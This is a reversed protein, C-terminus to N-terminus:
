DRHQLTVMLVALDDSVGGAGAHSVGSEVLARVLQLPPLDAHREVAIQVRDAGFAGLSPHNAELLGDSHLILRDGPELVGTWSQWESGARGLPPGAPLDLYGQTANARRLLPSPHGASVLVLEGTDLDLRGLLLAAFFETEYGQITIDAIRQLAKEPREDRRLLGPLLSGLRTMALMAEIGRGRIDGLYFVCIGAAPAVFGYFDGAVEATPHLCGNLECRLRPGFFVRDAPLLSRQMRGTLDMQEHLRRQTDAAERLQEFNRKLTQRARDLAMVLRGLEDKSAVRRSPREFNGQALEEASEALDVLSRTMPRLLRFVLALLIVLLVMLFVAIRRSSEHLPALLEANSWSLAAQWDVPAIRQVALLRPGSIDERIRLLQVSVDSPLDALRQLVGSGSKRAAQEILYARELSPDSSLLVRGSADLLAYQGLHSERRLGIEAALEAIRDLSLSVGIMGIRRGQPDILPRDFTVTDQGGAADNFYPDSWWGASSALTRVYWDRTWYEYGTAVFDVVDLGQAAYSVSIAFRRGPLLPNDPELMISVQAIDPDNLVRAKLLTVAQDADLRGDIVQQALEETRRELRKFLASLTDTVRAQQDLLDGAARELAQDRLLWYSLGLALLLAAALVVALQLGLRWHLRHAAINV